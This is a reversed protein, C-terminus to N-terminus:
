PHSEAGANQVGELTITAAGAFEDYAGTLIRDHEQLGELVVPVEYDTDIRVRTRTARRGDASVRYVWELRGTAMWPGRPLTLPDVVTGLALTTEAEQGSVLPQPLTELRAAVASTGGAQSVRSRLTVRALHTRDGVRVELVDGVNVRPAAYDPVEFRAEASSLLAFTVLTQYREVASGPGVSGTGLVVLPAPARVVCDALRAGLASKRDRTVRLQGEAQDLAARARLAELADTARAREDADRAQDLSWELDKLEQRSAWGQAVLAAKEDVQAGRRELDRRRGLADLAARQAVLRGEAELSVVRAELGPLDAELTRLEERLERADVVALVRGRDVVEGVRASYGVLTGVEPATLAGQDGLVVSGMLRLSRELSAVRTVEAVNPEVARPARPVLPAVVLLAVAAAVVALGLAVAAGRGVKRSPANRPMTDFLEKSRHEM